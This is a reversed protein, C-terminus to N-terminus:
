SPTSRPMVTATLAGLDISSESSFNMGPSTLPGGTDHDVDDDDDNDQPLSFTVTRPASVELNTGWRVSKTTTTTPRQPATVIMAQPNPPLEQRLPTCTSISIIPSSLSSPTSTHTKTNMLVLIRISVLLINILQTGSILHNSLQPPTVALPQLGKRKVHM